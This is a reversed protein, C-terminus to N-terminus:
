ISLCLSQQKKTFFFVGLGPIDCGVGVGGSTFCACFFGFFFVLHGPPRSLFSM